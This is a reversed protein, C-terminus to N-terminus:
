SLILLREVINEILKKYNIRTSVYEYLTYAYIAKEDYLKANDNIRNNTYYETGDTKNIDVGFVM